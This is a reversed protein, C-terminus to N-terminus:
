HKLTETCKKEACIFRDCGSAVKEPSFSERRTVIEPCSKLDGDGDDGDDDDGTSFSKSSNLKTAM